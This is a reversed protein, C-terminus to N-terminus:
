PPCNPQEPRGDCRHPILTTEFCFLEENSPSRGETHIYVDYDALGYTLTTGVLM